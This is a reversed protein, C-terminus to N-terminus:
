DTSKPDFFIRLGNRDSLEIRKGLIVFEFISSCFVRRKKYREMERNKKAFDNSSPFGGKFVPHFYINQSVSKQFSRNLEV